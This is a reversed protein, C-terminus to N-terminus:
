SKSDLYERLGKTMAEKATLYCSDCFISKTNDGPGVAHGQFDLGHCQFHITGEMAFSRPFEEKNKQCCDCTIITKEPIKVIGM